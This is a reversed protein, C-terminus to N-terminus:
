AEMAWVAPSGRETVTREKQSGRAPRRDVAIASTGRYAPGIQRSWSEEKIPWPRWLPCEM